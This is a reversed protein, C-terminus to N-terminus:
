YLVIQSISEDDQYEKFCYALNEFYTHWQLYRILLQFFITGLNFKPLLQPVLMQWDSELVQLVKNAYHLTSFETKEMNIKYDLQAGKCSFLLRGKLIAYKFKLYKHLIKSLM